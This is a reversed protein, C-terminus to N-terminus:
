GPRICKTMRNFIKLFANKYDESRFFYIVPDLASHSLALVLFWESEYGAKNPLLRIVTYPLYCVAFVLIVLAMTKALRREVKQSANEQVNLAVRVKNQKLIKVFICTYSVIIVVFCHITAAFAFMSIESAYSEIASFIGYVTCGVWSFFVVVVCRKLTLIDKHKLPWYIVIFREISVLGLLLLSVSTSFSIVARRYQVTESSLCRKNVARQWIWFVQVPLGLLSKLLDAVCLNLVNFQSLTQLSPTTLAAVIVLFNGAFGLFAVFITFVCLTIGSVFPYFCQTESEEITFNSVSM